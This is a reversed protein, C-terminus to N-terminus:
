LLEFYNQKNSQENHQKTGLGLTTVKATSIRSKEGNFLFKELQEKVGSSLIVHTQFYFLYVFILLCIASAKHAFDSLM